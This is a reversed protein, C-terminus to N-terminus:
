PGNFADGDQDKARILAGSSSTNCLFRRLGKTIGASASAILLRPHRQRCRFVSASPWQIPRLPSSTIASTLALAANAARTARAGGACVSTGQAYWVRRRWARDCRPTRGTSGCRYTCKAPFSLFCAASIAAQLLESLRWRGLSCFGASRLQQWYSKAISSKELLALPQISPM